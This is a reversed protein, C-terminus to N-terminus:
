RRVRARRSALGRVHAPRHRARRARLRARRPRRPGPHAAQLGAGGGGHPRDAGAGDRAGDADGRRAADGNGNITGAAVRDGSARAVPVPEGTMASEDVYSEGEIVEGDVPIKGGPRVRVIEGPLVADAPIVDEETGRISSPRQRSCTSCRASPAAPAARRATSWSAARSSSRSSPRPPRTTSTTPARRASGRARVHRRRLLRLGREHRDHRALGHRARPSEAGGLGKQLVRPRPRVPRGHRARLAAAPRRCGSAHRRAVGGSAPRGDAGNRPALDPHHARRRAVPAAGAQPGRGRAGRRRGRRHRRKPVSADYGAKPHGPDVRGRERRQRRRPGDRAGDRPQRERGRRWLGPEARARRPQLVLRVDHGRRPPHRDRPPGEGPRANEAGAATTAEPPPATETM